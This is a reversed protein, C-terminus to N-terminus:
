DEGGGREQQRELASDILRILELASRFSESRRSDTWTVTGQWTANRASLIQVVFTERM